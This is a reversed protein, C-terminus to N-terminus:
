SVVLNQPSFICKKNFFVSFLDNLPKTNKYLAYIAEAFNPQLNGNRFIVPEFTRIEAELKKLQQKKQVEPSSRKFISEFMETISQILGM